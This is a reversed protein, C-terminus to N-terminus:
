TRCRRARRGAVLLGVVALGGATAPEPVNYTITLLPPESGVDASAAAGDKSWFGLFSTPSTELDSRLQWGFNPQSGNLWGQVDGLMKASNAAASSWTYPAGVTFTTFTSEGSQAAAIVGGPTATSGVTWKGATPDASNYSAYDWTVDGTARAYGQGSGGINGSTPSGSNGETWDQALAYLRFTRSPYNGGGGSGGGSGAIQGVYMTLSVGTVTAGAPIGAGAVDFAVLSRKRNSSGDAGAFLAPGKGSANGTDAGASTAFIMADKSPNISVTAAPAAAPLISLLGFAAAAAAVAPRDHRRHPRLPRRHTPRDAGLNRRIM